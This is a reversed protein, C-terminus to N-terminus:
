RQWRRYALARWRTPMEGINAGPGSRYGSSLVRTLCRLVATGPVVANSYLEATVNALHSPPPSEGHGPRRFGQRADPPCRMVWADVETGIVVSRAATLGGRQATSPTSNPTSLAAAM